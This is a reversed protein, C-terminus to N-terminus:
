FCCEFSILNRSKVTKPTTSKILLFDEELCQAFVVSNAKEIKRTTITVIKETLVNPQWRLGIWNLMKWVQPTLESDIGKQKLEQTVRHLGYCREVKSRMLMQECRWGSQYGQMECDDIVQTLLSADSCRKLLKQMLERKSLERRALLRIVAQL